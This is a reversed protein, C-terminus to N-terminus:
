TAERFDGSALLRDRLPGEPVYISHRLTYQKQADALEALVDGHCMQPSCWCGLVKGRLEPLRALLHPQTLIWDRYKAIVQSRTGDPGIKFPNGWISPRDIRVDCAEKRWHVVRTTM